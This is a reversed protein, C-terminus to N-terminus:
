EAHGNVVYDGGNVGFDGAQLFGARNKGAEGGTAFWLGGARGSRLAGHACRGSLLDCRRLPFPPSSQLLPASPAFLNPANTSANRPM